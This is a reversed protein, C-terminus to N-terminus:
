AMRRKRIYGALSAVGMFLGAMTMPEPVAAGGGVEVTIASRAVETQGDFAALYIEYTGVNAADFPNADDFWEMNWSQQVVNYTSLYTGYLPVQIALDGNPNAEVGQGNLTANTGFSHDAVPLNIPDFKLYDTGIGPDFDLGLEYTLANVPRGPQTGVQELDTNVTWEFNWIALDTAPYYGTAFSYSGDGNSNYVGQKRLKARLGIEVNNRSDVTFFGNNNGTGFIMSTPPTVEADYSITASAVGSVALILGLAVCLGSTRM